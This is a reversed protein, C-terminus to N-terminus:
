ICWWALVELATRNTPHAAESEIELDPERPPLSLAPSVRSGPMPLSAGMHGRGQASVTAVSDMLGLSLGFCQSELQAGSGM